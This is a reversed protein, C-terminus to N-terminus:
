NGSNEMVLFSVTLYEREYANDLNLDFIEVIRKLRYVLTNKHVFLRKATLVRDRECQLYVRLIHYFDTSKLSDYERLRDLAPHIALRRLLPDRYLATMDELACNYYDKVGKELAKRAQKYQISMNRIGAFPYSCHMRFGLRKLMDSFREPFETGYRNGSEEFRRQKVPVGCVINGNGSEGDQCFVIEPFYSCLAWMQYGYNRGGADDKELIAVVGPRSPEWGQMQYFTRFGNEDLHRGQLFDRFLSQVVTGQQKGSDHGAVLCLAKKLIQALHKQYKRFKEQSVITLQGTLQHESNEQSIMMSWPYSDTYEEYFIECDWKQPLMEMYKGKQMQVLSDVSLTGIDWFDDWNRNVSGKPYQRSFATVQLSTDTFFVPGFIDRCADIIVQEPNEQQFAAFMTQEWKQYYVFADMVMDFVDELEETRLSIVDKRHVLLVEKDQSRQFFDGTRGIYLYDPDPTKEYSFLRIGAITLEDSVITSVPNYKQIWQEIIDMSLKM